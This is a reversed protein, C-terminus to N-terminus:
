SISPWKLRAPRPDFRNGSLQEVSVLEKLNSPLRRFMPDTFWEESGDEERVWQRLNYLNQSRAQVPEFQELRNMFDVAMEFPGTESRIPQRNVQSSNVVAKRKCGGTTLLLMSSTMILMMLIVQITTGVFRDSNRTFM